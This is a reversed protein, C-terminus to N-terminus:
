QQEWEESLGLFQKIEEASWLVVDNGDTDVLKLFINPGGAFLVIQKSERYKVVGDLLYEYLVFEQCYYDDISCVKVELGEVLSHAIDSIGNWSCSRGM